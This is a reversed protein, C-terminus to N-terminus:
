DLLVSCSPFSLCPAMLLTVEVLLLALEAVLALPGGLLILSDEKRVRQGQVESARSRVLSVLLLFGM